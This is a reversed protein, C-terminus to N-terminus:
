GGTSADLPVLQETTVIPVPLDTKNTTTGIVGIRRGVYSDMSLGPVPVIYHTNLGANNRLTYTTKGDVRIAAPRLVGQATFRPGVDHAIQEHRQQLQALESDRQMAAETQRRADLLTRKLGSWWQVRGLSAEIERRQEATPNADLLKEFSEQAEDLSWKEPPRARMAELQNKLSAIRKELPAKPDDAFKVPPQDADSEEKPVTKESKAFTLEEEDAKPDGEHIAPPIVRSGVANVLPAQPASDFDTDDDVLGVKEEAAAAVVPMETGNSPLDLDTRAVYRVEEDPPLIKYWAVIKGDEKGYAKDLIAVHDGQKLTVQFVHRADTLESGIRVKSSPVIVKGSGDEQEEVTRALIWSFSGGPPKIAVWRKTSDGYATVAEGVSLAQTPYFGIGPGSLAYAQENAVKAEYASPPQASAVSSPGSAVLWTLLWSGVNRFRHRM